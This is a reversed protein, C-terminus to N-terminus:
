RNIQASFHFALPEVIDRIHKRQRESVKELETELSIYLFIMGDDQNIMILPLIQTFLYLAPELQECFILLNATLSQM